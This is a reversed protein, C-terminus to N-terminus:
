LYLRVIFQPRMCRIKNEMIETIWRGHFRSPYIKLRNLGRIRTDIICKRVIRDWKARGVVSTWQQLKLRWGGHFNWGAPVVWLSNRRLMRDRFLFRLASSAAARRPRELRPELLTLMKAYSTSARTILCWSLFYATCECYSGIVAVNSVFFFVIKCGSM